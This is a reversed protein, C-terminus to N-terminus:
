RSKRSKPKGLIESWIIGKVAEERSIKSFDLRVNSISDNSIDGNLIPSNELTKAQELAREKRKKVQEYRENLERNSKEVESELSSDLEYSHITNPATSEQQNRQDSPDQEQRFIERWDVEDQRQTTTTTQRRPSSTNTTDKKGGRGQLLSLIAAIVFFLILPNNGFLDFLGQMM